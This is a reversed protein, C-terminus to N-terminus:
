LPSLFRERGGPRLAVQAAPSPLPSAPATPEASGSPSPEISPSPSPEPSISPSPEPSISPSPEPSISPSPEPSISPSPEPSISPSPEPSVSPSPTPKATPWPAATDGLLQPITVFKFGRSKYNRIIDRVADATATPGAHMLVVSGNRGRTANSYVTWSTAWPSTDGSSVDWMMITPFGARASAAAVRADWSGGPPRFVRVMPVGTIEEILRRSAKIQWEMDHTSLTRFDPHSWSHNAIPFGLRAVKKWFAPNGRVALAYPFWTATVKESVLVDLIRQDNVRSWGDDFTLAVVRQSRSGNYVARAPGAALTPAVAALGLVACALITAIASRAHIGSRRRPDIPPRRPPPPSEARASRVTRPAPPATPPAPVTPPAASRESRYAGDASASVWM